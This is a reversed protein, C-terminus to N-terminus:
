YYEVIRQAVVWVLVNTYDCVIIGMLMPIDLAVGNNICTYM